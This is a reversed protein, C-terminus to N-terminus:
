KWTGKITLWDYYRISAQKTAENIIHSTTM